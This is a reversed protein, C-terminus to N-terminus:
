HTGLGKITMNRRYTINNDHRVSTGRVTFILNVQHESITIENIRLIEIADFVVELANYIGFIRLAKLACTMTLFIFLLKVTILFLIM